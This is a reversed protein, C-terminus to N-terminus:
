ENEPEKKIENLDKDYMKGPQMTKVGNSTLFSIPLSCGFESFTEGEKLKSLKEWPIADKFEENM